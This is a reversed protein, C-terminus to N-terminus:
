KTRTTAKEDKIGLNCARKKSKLMEEEEKEIDLLKNRVVIDLVGLIAAPLIIVFVTLFYSPMDFSLFRLVHHQLYEEQQSSSLREIANFILEGYFYSVIFLYFLSPIRTLELVRKIKKLKERNSINSKDCCKSM